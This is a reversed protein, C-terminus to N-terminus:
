RENLVAVFSDVTVTLEQDTLKETDPVKVKDFDAAFDTLTLSELRDIDEVTAERIVEGTEGRCASGDTRLDGGAVGPREAGTPKPLSAQSM